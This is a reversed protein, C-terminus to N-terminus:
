IQFIPLTLVKFISEGKWLTEQYEEQPISDIVIGGGVQLNIQHNKFILTRIAINLDFDQNGKIYGISGTYVGRSRHELKQICEMAKLKPCGTISGGPFCNRIIQLSTLHKLCISSIISVLHYVNTYVECRWLDLTRVSGIESVKGLDNRMLDTIMLLEAKEKESSILKEKFLQDEQFNTGRKITGKIPRTELRQNERKLFREPSTSVITYLDTKLYASFPAPNIEMLQRFVDFPRCIGEFIFEQSLNVQYVHGSRIWEKAKEIMNLYPTQRDSASCDRLSNSLNKEMESFAMVGENKWWNLDSLKEFWSQQCVNLLAKNLDTTKLCAQKREHDYIITLACKEWMTDPTWEHSRYNFQIDLDASFGMEYGFFGFAYNEPDDKLHNFFIEQLDNWPHSIPRQYSNNNKKHILQNDKIFITEIPFLSLFSQKSSDLQGGSFLLCTGEWDAFFNAIRLLDKESFSPIIFSYSMLGRECCVQCAFKGSQKRDISYLSAQHM